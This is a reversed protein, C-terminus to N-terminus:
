WLFTEQAKVQLPEDCPFLSTSDACPTRSAEGGINHTRDTPSKPTRPKPNCEIVLRNLSPSRQQAVSARASKSGADVSAQGGWRGGSGRGRGGPALFSTSAEGELQKFYCGRGASFYTLVLPNPVRGELPKGPHAPRRGATHPAHHYVM